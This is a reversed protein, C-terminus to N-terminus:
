AMAGAGVLPANEVTQYRPSNITEKTDTTKQGCIAECEGGNLDITETKRKNDGDITYNEGARRENRRLDEIATTQGTKQRFTV